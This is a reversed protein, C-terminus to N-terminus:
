GIESRAEVPQIILKHVDRILHTTKDYRQLPLVWPYRAIHDYMAWRAHGRKLIPQVVVSPLQEVISVLEQPISRPETIDAIVFRAMRALLTITEHTDRRSPRDFDFIVPVYGYPPQRLATRIADLVVKRSPTFRGLILVVRSTMTEIVDRLRENRLLLYVFQAVELNDVHVSPEDDQTIRLDRQITKASISVNWAAAGYVSCSRLIAGNLRTEVMSALDLRANTLNARTLNTRLLNASMLSAGTLDADRLDAETLFAQSATADRLNAGRLKAQTLNADMLNAGALNANQLRANWLQAKYLDAGHLDISEFTLKLQDLEAEQLDPSARPKGRRWANWATVGRRLIDLHEPNAMNPALHLVV